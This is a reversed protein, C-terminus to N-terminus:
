VDMECVTVLPPTWSTQRATLGARKMRERPSWDKQIDLCRRRIEDPSPVSESYTEPEDGHPDSFQIQRADRLLQNLSSRFAIANM